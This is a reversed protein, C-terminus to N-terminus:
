QGIRGSIPAFAHVHILGTAASLLKRPADITPEGNGRAERQTTDMLAVYIRFYGPQRIVLNDFLVSWHDGDGAYSPNQFLAAVTGGTLINPVVQAVAARGDASVLSAQAWISGTDLESEEGEIQINLGKLSVIISPLPDNTRVESPPQEDVSFSITHTHAVALKGGRSIDSESSTLRPLPVLARSHTKSLHLAIQRGSEWKKFDKPCPLALADSIAKGHPYLRQVLSRLNGSQDLVRGQITGLALFSEFKQDTNNRAESLSFLFVLGTLCQRPSAEVPRPALHLDM